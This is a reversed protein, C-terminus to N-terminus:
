GMRKAFFAFLIPRAAMCPQNGKVPVAQLVFPQSLNAIAPKLDKLTGDLEDMLNALRSDGLKTMADQLVAQAQLAIGTVKGLDSLAASFRTMEAPYGALAQSSLAFAQQTLNRHDEASPGPAQAVSKIHAGIEGTSQQLSDVVTLTAGKLEASHSQLGQKPRKWCRSCCPRRAPSLRRWSSDLPTPATRSRKVINLTARDLAQQVSDLDALYAQHNEEWSTLLKRGRNRDNWCRQTAGAMAEKWRGIALPDQEPAVRQLAPLFEEVLSLELIPTSREERSRLRLHFLLLILPRAPRGRHPLARLLAVPFAPWVKRSGPFITLMPPFLTRSAESPSSSEWCRASWGLLASAWVSIRLQNYARRIDDRSSLFRASSPWTPM